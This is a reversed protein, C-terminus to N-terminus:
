LACVCKRVLLERSGRDAIYITNIRLSRFFFFRINANLECYNDTIQPYEKVACTLETNYFETQFKAVPLCVNM